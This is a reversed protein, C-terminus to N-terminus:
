RRASSRRPRHRATRAARSATPRHPNLPRRPPRFAFFSQFVSPFDINKLHRHVLLEEPFVSQKNIVNSIENICTELILLTQNVIKNHLLGQPVPGIEVVLGCPWSEVLFGKQCNDGEHM